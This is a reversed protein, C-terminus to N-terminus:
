TRKGMDKQYSSTPYNEKLEYLKNIGEELQMYAEQLEECTPAHPIATCCENCNDCWETYLCGTPSEDYFIDELPIGAIVYAQETIKDTPLFRQDASVVKQLIVNQAWRQNKAEWNIIRLADAYTMVSKMSVPSGPKMNIIDM